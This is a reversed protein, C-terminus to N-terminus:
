SKVALRLPRYILGDSSWPIDAPDEQPRLDPLRTTLARFAEQLEMRALNAGLCYHTGYGFSLHASPPSESWRRIDFRRPDEYVEPDQNAAAPNPLVVVGEQIVGGSLPIDATARRLLGNGGPGEYRLIEEVAPELLDPDGVLDAYQEPHSLLRFTGRIIISATTEHGALILTFVMNTLEDESLRDGEDRAAILLDLLDDGPRARHEAILEGAYAMFSVYGEGRAEANAESTSLFVETWERFQAYRDMPVGLMECIVRAPLPLAFGTVVDFERGAADILENAIAAARPRWREIQRPTFTGQMIRRYRTHAPPDQNILAAPDDEVTTGNVMRPLGPERLNRSSAPSSLLMRVDEHRVAMPVKDGSPM